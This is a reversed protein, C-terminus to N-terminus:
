RKMRLYEVRSNFVERQVDPTFRRGRYRNDTSTQESPQAFHQKTALAADRHDESFHITEGNHLTYWRLDDKSFDVLEPNNASCMYFLYFRVGHDRRLQEVVHPPFQEPWISRGNEVISRTIWEVSPDNKKSHSYLDAVAWPTGILFELGNEEYPALLARSALHWDIAAKMVTPSNAAALSILDDKILVKCHAGTIAGDVGIVRLSPDAYDTARRLIMEDENWKKSERRPNDWAIHPWLARLLQNSEWQNEVWRLHPSMLDKKEGALIINLENGPEGKWYINTAAPQIHMHIPVAESVISSKLHGRPVLRGKRYPPIEATLSHCFWKHFKPSLLRRKLVGKTFAYLSQEYRLRQEVMWQGTDDSGAQRVRGTRTEIVIENAPAPDERSQSTPTAPPPLTASGPMREEEPAEVRFVPLLRDTRRRLPM